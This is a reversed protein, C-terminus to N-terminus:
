GRPIDALRQVYEASITKIVGVFIATSPRPKPFHNNLERNFRKLPNNTRAILENNLGAVNWVSMDYQEMWTRNFYGWFGRWKVNSYTIGAEACRRRIELKVWKICRKVLSHDIVTLMDLVGKSMAIACEEESLLFRKMARRLAQKWHLLCGIVIGNPFRSQVAQILASEFDCVVEAPEIQQDTGQVVFHIIDWFSDGTRSTSLVYYVPVYLGSARDHVMVIVCQKYGSVVCRFTGDIFITTGHYFLLSILSPHAWGFLRTPKNLNERNATVHHFQFFSVAENLATSLPPIEIAGHVDGSFHRNRARYVRRLVQPESLGQVVHENNAGYFEDRVVEWIRRAPEAAKEISLTDVRDKMPGTVDVLSADTADVNRCTHPRGFNYGM